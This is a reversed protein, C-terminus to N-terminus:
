WTNVVQPRRVLVADKNFGCRGFGGAYGGFSNRARFTLRVDVVQGSAEKVVAPVFRADIREFSRPDKLQPRIADDCRWVMLTKKTEDRMLDNFESSSSSRDKGVLKDWEAKKKAAQTLKPRIASALDPNVSALFEIDIGRREGCYFDVLTGQYEDCKRALREMKMVKQKFHYDPNLIQTKDKVKYCADVDGGNCTEITKAVQNKSYRVGAIGVATGVVVLGALIAIQQPKM